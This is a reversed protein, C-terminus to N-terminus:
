HLGLIPLPSLSQSILQDGLTTALHSFIPASPPDNLLGMAERPRLHSADAKVTKCCLCLLTNNLALYDGGNGATFFGLHAPEALTSLPPAERCPSKETRTQGPSVEIRSLIQYM